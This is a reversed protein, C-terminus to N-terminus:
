LFINKAPGLRACETRASRRALCGVCRGGATDASPAVGGFKTQTSEEFIISVRCDLRFICGKIGLTSSKHTHPPPPCGPAPGFTGVRRGSSGKKKALLRRGGAPHPSHTRPAGRRGPSVRSPGVAVRVSVLGRSGPLLGCTERNPVRHARVLPAARRPVSVRAQCGRGGGGFFIHLSIFM